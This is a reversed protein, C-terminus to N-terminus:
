QIVMKRFTSEKGSCVNLIYMGPALDSIDLSTTRDFQHEAYVKGSLSIVKLTSQQDSKYSVHVIESAPNPYVKLKDATNTEIAGPGSTVITIDEGNDSSTIEGDSNYIRIRYGTGEPTTSLITATHNKVGPAGVDLTGIVTPSTFSGAADSLQIEFEGTFIGHSTFEVDLDADDAANVNTTEVIPADISPEVTVITIDEGNDLSAFDGDSNYIRIRYGIGEPTSSLITTTHIKVGPDGVDLTGIVTPTTFSGAADSLQIEFVGTFIGHSTFEVDLDADEIAIIQTSEVVPPDIYHDIVDALINIVFPDNIIDNCAISITGTFAGLSSPTVTVTFETSDEIQVTKMDTDSKLTIGSSLQAAPTGLELPKNGGINFVTFTTDFSEGLFLTGFDFNDGNNLIIGNNKVEIESTCYMTHKGIDSLIAVDAGDYSDWDTADYSDKPDLIIPKRRFDKKMGGWNGGVKGVVDVPTLFEDRHAIYLFAYYGLLNSTTYINATFNSKRVIANDGLDPILIDLNAYASDNCFIFFEGPALIVPESLYPYEGTPGFDNMHRDTPHHAVVSDQLWEGDISTVIMYDGMDLDAGTGNYIEIFSANFTGGIGVAWETIIPGTTVCDQSSLKLQSGFLLIYLIGINIFFSKM